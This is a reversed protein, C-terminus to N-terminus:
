TALVAFMVLSSFWPPLINEALLLVAADDYGDNIEVASHDAHDAEIGAAVVISSVLYWLGPLLLGKLLM